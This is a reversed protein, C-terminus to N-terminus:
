GVGVTRVGPHKYLGFLCGAMLVCYTACPPRKNAMWEAFEVVIHRPESSVERFRLFWHQLSISDKVGPGSGESLRRAVELVTDKTLNVPVLEPSQGPYADLSTTSSACAEPHKSWFVNLVPKRPNSCSNGPQLDEDKDREAIWSVM